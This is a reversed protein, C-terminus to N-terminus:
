RKAWLVKYHNVLFGSFTLLMLGLVLGALFYGPEFTELMLVYYLAVGLFVLKLAIIGLFTVWAKLKKKNELCSLIRVLALAWLVVTVNTLLLGYLSSFFVTPPSFFMGVAIAFVSLSFYIRLFWVLM